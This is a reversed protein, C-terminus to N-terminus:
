LLNKHWSQHLPIRWNSKLEAINQVMNNFVITEETIEGSKIKEQFESMGVVKVKGQADEYSLQLRDLLSVGLEAELSKIQAVSSDISCGTANQGSEDVMLVIFLNNRVEFGANLQTGHAAWTSVFTSLKQKILEVESDTLIRNSQYIWVRSTLPLQITPSM